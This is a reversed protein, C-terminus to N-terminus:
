ECRRFDKPPKRYDRYGLRNAYYAAEHQRQQHKTLFTSSFTSGCIYCDTFKNWGEPSDGDEEAHDDM